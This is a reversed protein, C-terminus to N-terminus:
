RVISRALLEMPHLVPLARGLREAAIEQSYGGILSTAYGLAASTSNSDTGDAVVQVIASQGAGLASGYGAPVALALWAEGRDLFPEIQEVTTVTSVVRFNTRSSAHSTM